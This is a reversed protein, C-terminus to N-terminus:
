SKLDAYLGHPAYAVPASKVNVYNRRVDRSRNGDKTAEVPM